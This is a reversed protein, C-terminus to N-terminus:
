GVSGHPLQPLPTATLGVIRTVLPRVKRMAKFRQAQHSKFSSLEDIVVM